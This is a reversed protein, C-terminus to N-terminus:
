RRTYSRGPDALGATIGLIVAPHRRVNPLSVCLPFLIFQPMELSLFAEKGMVIPAASSCFQFFSSSTAHIHFPEDHFVIMSLLEYHYAFLRIPLWPFDESEPAPLSPPHNRQLTCPFLKALDGSPHQHCEIVQKLAEPTHSSKM